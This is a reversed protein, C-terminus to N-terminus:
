RTPYDVWHIGSEDDPLWLGSLLERYSRALLRRNAEISNPRPQAAGPATHVERIHQYAAFSVFDAAQILPSNKSSQLLMDRVVPRGRLTPLSPWVREYVERLPRSDNYLRWEEIFQISTLTEVNAPPPDKDYVLFVSSGQPLAWAALRRLFAEFALDEINARRGSQRPPYCHTTVTIRLQACSAMARLMIEYVELRDALTVLPKSADAASYHGRGSILDNAKMEKEVPVTWREAVEHRGELWHNLLNQYEAVSILLGTFTKHPKDGGDDVLSLSYV